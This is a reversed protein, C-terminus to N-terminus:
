RMLKAMLLLKELHDISKNIDTLQQILYSDKKTRRAEVELKSLKDIMGHMNQLMKHLDPNYGVTSLQKQLDKSVLNWDLSTKIKM